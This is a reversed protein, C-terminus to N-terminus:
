QYQTFLYRELHGSNPSLIILSETFGMDMYNLKTQVRESVLGPKETDVICTKQFCQQFILFQEYCDIEGKGM